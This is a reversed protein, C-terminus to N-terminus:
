ISVSETLLAAFKGRFSAAINFIRLYAAYKIKRAPTPM